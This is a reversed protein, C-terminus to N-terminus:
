GQLAGTSGISDPIEISSNRHKRTVARALKQLLRQSDGTGSVVVKQSDYGSIIYDSRALFFPPIKYNIIAANNVNSIVFPPLTDVPIDAPSTGRTLIDIVHYVSRRGLKRYDVTIGVLGVSKGSPTIDVGETTSSFVPIRSPISVKGILDM